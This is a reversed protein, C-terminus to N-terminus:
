EVPCAPPRWPGDRAPNGTAYSACPYRPSPRPAASWPVVTPTPPPTACMEARAQYNFALATMSCPFELDLADEAMKRAQEARVRCEAASLALATSLDSM